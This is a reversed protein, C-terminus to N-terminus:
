SEKDNRIIARFGRGIEEWQDASDIFEIAAPYFIYTERFIHNSIDPIFKEKFKTIKAVEPNPEERVLGELVEIAELNIQRFNKHEERLNDPHEKMGYKDLVPFLVDEEKRIHSDLEAYYDKSIKLVNLLREHKVDEKIEGLASSLAKLRDINDRHDRCLISLPHEESLGYDKNLLVEELEGLSVKFIAKLPVRADNCGKIKFNNKLVGAAITVFRKPGIDDLIEFLKHRLLRLGDDNAGRSKLIIPLIKNIVQFNNLNITRM